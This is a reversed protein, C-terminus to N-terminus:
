WALSPCRKFMLLTPAQVQKARPKSNAGMKVVVVVALKANVLAFLPAWVTLTYRILRQGFIVTRSHRPQHRVRSALTASADRTKVDKSATQDEGYKLKATKFNVVKPSMSLLAM